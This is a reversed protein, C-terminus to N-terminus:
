IRRGGTPHKGPTVIASATYIVGVSDNGFKLSSPVSDAPTLESIISIIRRYSKNPWFETLFFVSGARPETKKKFAKSFGDLVDNLLYCISLAKSLYITTDNLAIFM